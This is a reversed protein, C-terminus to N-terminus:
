FTLVSIGVTFPYIEPGKNDEFLETLSYSAFLTFNGYGIRAVASLRWPNTNFDTRNKVKYRNGDETYIQKQKSGLRYSVMAGVGLFFSHDADKGINTELMIPVNIMSTKFKNKSVNRSSDVVGFTSDKKGTSSQIIHSGDLDYNNFEFGLGTMIGFKEKAIPIYQEYINIGVSISKGYNLDLFDAEKQLDLSNDPNVFGNIGMEFGAFHNHRQISKKEKSEVEIDLSDINDSNVIYITKRKTTIKVTDPENVEEKKESSEVTTQAMLFSSALMLMLALKLKTKM